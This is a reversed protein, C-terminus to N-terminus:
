AEGGRAGEAVPWPRAFRRARGHRRCYDELYERLRDRDRQAMGVFQVGVGPPLGAYQTGANVWAVRARCEIPIANGPLRFGVEVADGPDLPERTEVFVGDLGLDVLFAERSEGHLTLRARQVFPIRVKEVAVASM